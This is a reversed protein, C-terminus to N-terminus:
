IEWIRGNEFVFCNLRIEQLTKLNKKPADVHAFSLGSSKEVIEFSKAKWSEGANLNNEYLFSDGLKYGIAELHIELERKSIQEVGAQLLSHVRALTPKTKM